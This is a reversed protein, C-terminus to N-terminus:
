KKFTKLAKEAIAQPLITHAVGGCRTALPRPRAKGSHLFAKRVYCVPAHCCCYLRYYTSTALTAGRPLMIMVRCGVYGLLLLLLCKGIGAGVECIWASQM